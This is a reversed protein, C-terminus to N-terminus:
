GRRGRKAGAVLPSHDDGPDSEGPDDDPGATSRRRRAHSRPRRVPLASARRRPECSRLAESLEQMELDHRRREHRRFDELEGTDEGQRARDQLHRMVGRYEGAAMAEADEAFREEPTPDGEQPPVLGVHGLSEVFRQREPEDGFGILDSLADQDAHSDLDPKPSGSRPSDM